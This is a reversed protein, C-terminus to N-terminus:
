IGSLTKLGGSFQQLDRFINKSGQFHQEPDLFMKLSVSFRQDMKFYHKPDNEPDMDVNRPDM